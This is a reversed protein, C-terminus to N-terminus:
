CVVNVQAFVVLDEGGVSCSVYDIGWGCMVQLMRRFGWERRGGVVRM